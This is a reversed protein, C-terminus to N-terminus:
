KTYIILNEDEYLIEGLVFEEQHESIMALAEKLVAEKDQYSMEEQSLVNITIFVSVALIISAAVSGIRLWISKKNKERKQITAWIDDELNKPAIIRKQKIYKFWVNAKSNNGGLKHILNKEEDTSTLGEEFLDLQKKIEERNM